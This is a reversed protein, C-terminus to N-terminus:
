RTRVRPNGYLDLLRLRAALLRHYMVDAVRKMLDYGLKPDAECKARLCAGDFAILSTPEVARADGVWRHPPVLWEWGLIGGDEVTDLVLRGNTPSHIELAVRGHRVVYFADAPTGERILLEDTDAHVNTACGSLLGMAVDDLGAFFPHEALLDDMTRM